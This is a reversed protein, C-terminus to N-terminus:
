RVPGDSLELRGARPFYGVCNGRSPLGRAPSEVRRSGDRSLRDAILGPGHFQAVAGCVRRAQVVGNQMLGAFFVM